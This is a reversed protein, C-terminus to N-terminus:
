VSAGSIVIRLSSSCLLGERGSPSCLLGFRIKSSLKGSSRTRLGVARNSLGFKGFDVKVFKVAKVKCLISSVQMARSKM